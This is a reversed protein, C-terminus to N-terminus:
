EINGAFSAAKLDATKQFAGKLHLFQSCRPNSWVRNRDTWCATLEVWKPTVNSLDWLTKWCNNTLKLGDRMPGRMASGFHLAGVPPSHKPVTIIVLNLGCRILRPMSCLIASQKAL